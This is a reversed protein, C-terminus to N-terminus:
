NYRSTSNGNKEKGGLISDQSNSNENNGDKEKGGVMKMDYEMMEDVINKFNLKPKWGLQNKAKSADGILVSVETPRFYYPDVSVYVKGTKKDVGVEELEGGKWEIDVGVRSFAEEVFDRISRCEGSAIVFDSPEEVQMMMWMAEASDKAHNWDRRANLNGLTIKDRKGAMIEAIGKTIKRTVFNEGRRPSETNFIIGNVCFMNYAERYHRVMWYAYLKAIGYPSRPHFPTGENVPYNYIGGYLESTSAQYIKVKKKLNRAAECIRLTGLANVDSTHEPTQFSIWVHSQAALNYIEDPEVESVIKAIVSADGLDGYILNLDKIHDIRARAGEVHSTRRIIGYVEYGKELLFEALYSGIQGTVGTILAKKKSPSPLNGFRELEKPEEMKKKEEWFPIKLIVTRMTEMM